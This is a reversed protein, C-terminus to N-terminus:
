FAHFSPLFHLRLIRRYHHQHLPLDQRHHHHGQHHHECHQNQQEQGHPTRMPMAPRVCETLFSKDPPKSISTRKKRQKSEFPLRSIECWSLYSATKPRTMRVLKRAPSVLTPM